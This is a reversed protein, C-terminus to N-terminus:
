FLLWVLVARGVVMKWPLSVTLSQPPTILWFGFGDLVRCMVWSFFSFHDVDLCGHKYINWIFWRWPTCRNWWGVVWASEVEWSTRRFPGEVYHNLEQGHDVVMADGDIWVEPFLRSDRRWPKRPASFISGKVDLGPYTAWQIHFYFMTFMMIVIFM